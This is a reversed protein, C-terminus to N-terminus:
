RFHQDIQRTDLSFFFTFICNHLRYRMNFCRPPDERRTLSSVLEVEPDFFLLIGTEMVVGDPEVRTIHDLTLRV